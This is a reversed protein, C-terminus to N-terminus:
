DDGFPWFNWITIRSPPIHVEQVIDTKPDVEVYLTDTVTTSRSFNVLILMLGHNKTDGYTYGYYTVDKGPLRITPEANLIRKLDATKTTGVHIARARQAISPDNTRARGCMCGSLMTLALGGVVLLFPRMRSNM